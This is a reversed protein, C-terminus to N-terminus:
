LNASSPPRMRLSASDGENLILGGEDAFKHIVFGAFLLYAIGLHTILIGAKRLQWRMTLLGGCVLNIGLLLMTLFGGPLPVPVPGLWEIIGWSEFYRVKAAHLGHDVQAITGLFTLVFLILLLVVALKMSSFFAFVMMLRDATTKPAASSSNSM